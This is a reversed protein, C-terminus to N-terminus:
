LISTKATAVTGDRYEIIGIARVCIVTTKLTLSNKISAIQSLSQCIFIFAIIKTILHSGPHIADHLLSKLLPLHNPNLM